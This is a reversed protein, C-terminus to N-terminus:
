EWPLCQHLWPKKIAKKEKIFAMSLITIYVEKAKVVTTPFLSTIAMFAM